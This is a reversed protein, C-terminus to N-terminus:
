NILSSYLFNENGQDTKAYYLICGNGNTKYVDVVKYETRIRDKESSFGDRTNDEILKIGDSDIILDRIIASGEDGYGTIRVMDGVNAKKNKYNEIFKDLKEINCQIGGVNVVDGDKQAQKANYQQPLKALEEYFNQTTEIWAGDSGLTYGNVTVDHVM